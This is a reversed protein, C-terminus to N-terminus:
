APVAYGRITPRIFPPAGRMSAHDVQTLTFGASQIASETDRTLHCNGVLLKWVPEIRHQWKRRRPRDGAVVHELFVFRGDPKLVRRIEALVPAQQKVSCLVLSSIVADFTADPFPLSEAGADVVTAVTGRALMARELQVRMNKDPELLTLSTLTGPLSDLSGGTGAGIELVDGTLSALLERRWAILCGQEASSMIRDYAMAVPKLM